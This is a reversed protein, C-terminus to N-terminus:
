NGAALQTKAGGIQQSLAPAVKPQSLSIAVATGGQLDAVSFDPGHHAQATIPAAFLLGIIFVKKMTFELNAKFLYSGSIKRCHARACLHHANLFRHVQRAHCVGTAFQHSQVDVLLDSPQTKKYHTAM